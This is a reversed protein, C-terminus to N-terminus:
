EFSILLANKSVEMGEKVAIEKIRGSLPAAITNVMKMAELELLATGRVVTAGAAAEAFIKVIKGPIMARVEKEDRPAYPKRKEWKSTSLTQWSGHENSLTIEPEEM